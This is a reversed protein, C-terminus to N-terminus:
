NHFKGTEFVIGNVNRESSLIVAFDGDGRYFINLNLIENWGANNYKLDPIYLFSKPDYNKLNASYDGEFHITQICNIIEQQCNTKPAKKKSCVVSLSILVCVFFSVKKMTACYFIETAFTEANKGKISFM